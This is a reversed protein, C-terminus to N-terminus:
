LEDFHLIKGTPSFHKFPGIQIFNSNHSKVTKIKTGIHM